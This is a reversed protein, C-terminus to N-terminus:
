LDYKLISLYFSIIKEAFFLALLAGSILFPGFPLKDGFKKRKMILLIIAFIGGGIFAIILAVLAEQWSLFLGIFLGILVDGWGMWKEQSIVVLILFLGSSITVSFIMDDFKKENLFISILNYLGSIVIALFIINDPILYYKLDFIFLILLFCGALFYYILIFINMGGFKLFLLFFLFGCFLEVLPYQIPIKAKCSSCRGGLFFYSFIPILEFWLLIKGCNDCSSRGTIKEKKITRSIVVNLFSGIITGLVFIFFYMM